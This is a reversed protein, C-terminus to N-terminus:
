VKESLPLTFWFTTGKGLESEVGIEGGNSKIMDASIYLGLGLGSLQMKSNYTNYREFIRPLRHKPIGPGEDTIKVTAMHNATSLKIQIKSSGTAYKKANDVLNRIAQAIQNPDAYVTLQQQGPMDIMLLDLNPIDSTCANIAAMIDFHTKQPTLLGTTIRNVTLMDNVLSHLKNLNENAKQILQALHPIDPSPQVREMLQLCAKLSTLPTKLEHSAVGIFEDKQSILFNLHAQHEAKARRLEVQEMTVKALNKLIDAEHPTITRPQRDVLCITGIIYGDPTVIPAAAYFRLGFEGFVFPHDKLLPEKTADEIVLVEPKLLTLACLSEGRDVLGIEGLGSSAMVFEHEADLFSIHAIPVNFITRALDAINDFAAEAPANFIGYRQLAAVRETDNAPIIDIPYVNKM